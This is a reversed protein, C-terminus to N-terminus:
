YRITFGANLGQAWFDTTQLPALPRTPGGGAGFTISTPVLTQNVQRDVLPAVREVKTWYLFTYGAHIDMCKNIQFGLNIGAEPVVSFDYHTDHIANSALALLGGPVTTTNNLTSSGFIQTVQQTTGFAVKASAAVYFRDCNFQSRVGLNVGYFTNSARFHDQLFLQSGQGVIMGPPFGALGNPLLTTNQILDIKENLNLYRFGVLLDPFDQYHGPQYIGTLDVNYFASDSNAVFGGAFQGPFAVFYVSEAGTRANIIPRSIVPLGTSSAQFTNGRQGFIFGGLEIGVPCCLYPELWMGVAGRAGHREQPVVDSNGYLLQTDTRGLVGPGTGTSTTALPPLKSNRTVWLLYELNTWYLPHTACCPPSEPLFANDHIPEPPGLDFANDYQARFIPKPLLPDTPAPAPQAWALGAGALLAPITGLIGHRM